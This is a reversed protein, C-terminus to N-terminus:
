KYEASASDAQDKSKQAKKLFKTIQNAKSFIDNQNNKLITSSDEVNKKIININNNIDKMQKNINNINSTNQSTTKKIDNELNTIYNEKGKLVENFCSRLSDVSNSTSCVPNSFKELNFFFNKDNKPKFDIIKNILLLFFILIFLIIFLLINKM